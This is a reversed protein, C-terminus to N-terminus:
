CLLVAWAEPVGSSRLQGCGTMDQSGQTWFTRRVSQLRTRLRTVLAACLDADCSDEWCGMLAGTPGEAGNSLHPCLSLLPFTVQGLNCGTSCRLRSTISGLVWVKCVNMWAVNLFLATFSTSVAWEGPSSNKYLADSASGSFSGWFWIVESSSFPASPFRVPYSPSDSLQDSFGRAVQAISGSDQLFAARTLCISRYTCLDHPLLM